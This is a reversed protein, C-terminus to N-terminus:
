FANIPEPDVAPWKLWRTNALTLWFVEPYMVNGSSKLSPPKSLFCLLSFREKVMTLDYFDKALWTTRWLSNIHSMPDKKCGDYTAKLYHVSIAVITQLHFLTTPQITGNKISNRWIISGFNINMFFSMQWYILPIWSNNNKLKPINNGGFIVLVIPLNGIKVRFKM